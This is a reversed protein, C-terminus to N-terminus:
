ISKYDKWFAKTLEGITTVGAEYMSCNGPDGMGELLFNLNLRANRVEDQVIIGNFDRKRKSLKRALEGINKKTLIMGDPYNRKFWGIGGPCGEKKILWKTTLKRM